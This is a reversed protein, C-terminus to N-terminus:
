RRAGECAPVLAIGDSRLMAARGWRHRLPCTMGGGYLGQGTVDHTVLLLMMSGQGPSMVLRQGPSMM